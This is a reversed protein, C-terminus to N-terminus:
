LLSTDPAANAQSPMLVTVSTGTGPQSKITVTGGWLQARERMGLLGLAQREPSPTPPMGTGNDCVSLCVTTDDHDIRVIVQSAHAHRVVNTLAEQFIRFLATTRETDLHLEEPPVHLMCRLGTRQQVEELQWEIAAQLGFDDLLRPRLEMAIRHVAKDISDVQAAMAQLRDHVAPDPTSRGALWAIDMQMSTLTQALEDHIERAIAAREQEQRHHQHLALLRFQEKVQQRLATLDLLALRWQLPASEGERRALSKMQAYFPTGDHRQMWLGCTSPTAEAFVQQRYFHLTDQEEPLVLTHLRRRRLRARPIDFMQTATINTELIMGDVDLTLYGVPAFDYLDVYRNRVERLESQARRLEENQMDLEIQHLQLEYTLRQLDPAPMAALEQWTKQLHAAARQRLTRPPRVGPTESTSPTRRNKAM